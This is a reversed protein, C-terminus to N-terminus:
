PSNKELEIVGSSGDITMRFRGLFSMGLLQKGGLLHDDVFTVAVGASEAEGVRVSQLMATLGMTKGNATQVRVSQLDDSVYGLTAAMSHPLVLTSAGTDVMFKLPVFRGNPGTLIAEVYHESQHRETKIYEPTSPRVSPTVRLGVITLKAIKNQEDRTIIFNYDTLLLGIQKDLNKTKTRTAQEDGVHGLGEIQFEQETALSELHLRLEKAAVGGPLGFVWGLGVLLTVLHLRMARGFSHSRPLIM